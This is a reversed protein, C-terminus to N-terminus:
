FKTRRLDQFFQFFCLCCIEFNYCLLAVPRFDIHCFIVDCGAERKRASTNVSRLLTGAETCDTSGISLTASKRFCSPQLMYQRTSSDFKAWIDPSNAATTLTAICLSSNSSDRFVKATIRTAKFTWQTCFGSLIRYLKIFTNLQGLADLSLGIFYTLPYQSAQPKFVVRLITTFEQTDPLKINVFVFVSRHHRKNFFQGQRALFVSGIGPYNQDLKQREGSQIIFIQCM